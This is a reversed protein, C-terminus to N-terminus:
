AHEMGPLRPANMAVMQRYTEAREKAIVEEATEPIEEVQPDGGWDANAEDAYLYDGEVDELAQSLAADEDDAEIIVDITDYETSIEVLRTEVRGRIRFNPM